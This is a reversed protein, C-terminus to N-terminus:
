NNNVIEDLRGVAFNIQNNTQRYLETPSLAEPSTNYQNFEVSTGAAAANVGVDYLGEFDAMRRAAEESPDLNIVTGLVGGGPNAGAAELQQADSLYQRAQEAEEQAKAALENAAELDTFALAKADALDKDAQAQMEEAQKRRLAAKESDTMKDFAAQDAAEKADADFAAQFAAAAEAGALKQYKLADAAAKRADALNVNAAKADKAALARLRDAEAELAKRQKATVGAARAQRDLAAAQVRRKEARQEAAKADDLEKQADEARMQAKEILSAENFQQKRDAAEAASDRRSELADARTAAADAQAQLRDAAADDKTSKTKSALASAREAAAALGDAKARAAIAQQDLDQVYKSMYQSAIAIQGQVMSAVARIAASANDRIGNTLGMVVFKGIDAFVKSPSKIKLLKKAWWPLKGVIEAIWEKPKDVLSMLGKGLGEVMDVGVDFLADVVDTLGAGIKGSSSRIGGALAHLWDAILQIGAQVLRDLNNGLGEALKVVLDVGAKVISGARSAIGRLLGGIIKGATAGFEQARDGIASLFDGILKVAKKILSPKEKEVGKGISMVAGKGGEAGKKEKDSSWGLEKMAAKWMDKIGKIIMPVALVFTDIIAQIIALISDKMIPAQLALSQLFAAIAFAAGVGFAAFAGVGAAAIVMAASLATTFFLLGLGLLFMAAGLLLLAPGVFYSVVGVAALAVTLIGLILALKGISSWDVKNLMLGAMAMGIMAASIALIVVAAGLGGTAMMLTLAVAVALLVVALKAISEWKVVALMIMAAALLVMGASIALMAAGAAILTPWPVRSLLMMSITLAALVVGAKGISEWDVLKFAILAAAMVLLAASMVYIGAGGAIMNKASGAATAALKEMSKVLVFMTALGKVLSSWDVYNFLILAGAMLFMAGALIGIALAVGIATAGVKSGELSKLLSTFSKMTKNLMFFIAGLALLSTALKPLPIKSLIWLSVALIGIAIAINLILKARAATQFSKLADGAGDLVGMASEGIGSVAKIGDALANSLRSLSILFTSIVALNFSALVKEWDVKEFITRIIDGAKQFVNGVKEGFAGIEDGSNFLSKVLDAVDGTFEKIVSGVSKIVKGVKEIGSAGKSAGAAAAGGAKDAGGFSPLGPLGPLSISPLDPMKIKTFVDKLSAGKDILKSMQDIPERLASALDKLWKFFGGGSPAKLDVLGVLNKVLDAVWGIIGRIVAGGIKIIQFFLTLPGTLLRILSALWQLPRTLLEVAAVIGYMTKGIGKDGSPFAARMADGIATFIAGIPALVNKVIQGIKTFGGMTRFTKLTTEIFDFFTHVVGGVANSLGTWMKTSDELGGFVQTFVNAWGSSISEKLTDMFATFTRVDQAAKQAKKGLKTNEDGYEGLAKNLVQTNAWQEQLSMDFGATATLVKGSATVYEKGKKTLTGVEVAADILSQKFQVTGIKGTIAAQRYDQLGLFNNGMAQGFARFSSQAEQTSAGALASANAIGQMAKSAQELPVGANVFATMGETMDGFSFITKDSYTNLSSLVKKVEAASKGSANMLVNQKTLLSEYESFGAKIPDLTLSSALQLGVNTAKNAITALATTTAISMKSATLSVRSMNSNLDMLGKNKGAADVSKNLDSLSTKTEAARRKFEDNDFQMRVIRDDTSSM